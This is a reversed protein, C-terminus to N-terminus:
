HLDVIDNSQVRLDSLFHFIAWWYERTPKLEDTSTLLTLKLKDVPPTVKDSTSTLMRGGFTPPAYQMAIGHNQQQQQKQQQQQHNKKFM